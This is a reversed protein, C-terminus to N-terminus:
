ERLGPDGSMGRGKEKTGKNVERTVLGSKWIRKKKWSDETKTERGSKTVGVLTNGEKEDEGAMM